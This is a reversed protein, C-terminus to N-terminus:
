GNPIKSTRRRIVWKIDEFKEQPRSFVNAITFYHFIDLYMFLSKYYM